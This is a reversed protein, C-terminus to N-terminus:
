RKPSRTGCQLSRAASRAHPVNRPVDVAPRRRLRKAPVAVAVQRASSLWLNPDSTKTISEYLDYEARDKWEKKKDQASLGLASFGLALAAMIVAATVTSRRLCRWKRWVGTSLGKGPHKYKASYLRVHSLGALAEGSHVVITSLSGLVRWRRCNSVSRRSQQVGARTM